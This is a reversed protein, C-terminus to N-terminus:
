ENSETADTEASVPSAEDKANNMRQQVRQQVTAKLEDQASQFEDRVEDMKVKRDDRLQKLEEQINANEGDKAQELLDQKQKIFDRVTAATQQVRTKVANLQEKAVAPLKDNNLANLLSEGMASGNQRLEDLKGQAQPLKEELRTMMEERNLEHKALNQKLRTARESTDAAIKDKLAEVKAIQEQAKEMMDTAKARLKEDTAINAIFEALKQREESFVLLKEAKKVPDFTLAVSIKERIGRWWMGFASPIETPEVVTIGELVTGDTTTDGALDTPVEDVSEVATLAPVADVTVADLSITMDGSNVGGVTINADQALAPTSALLFTLFGVMFFYKPM